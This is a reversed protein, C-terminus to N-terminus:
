RSGEIIGGGVLEDGIYVVAAQGAAPARMSRDTQLLLFCDSENTPVQQKQYTGETQRNTDKQSRKIMQGCIGVLDCLSQSNELVEGLLEVEGQSVLCARGRYVESWQSLRIDVWFLDDPIINEAQGNNNSCKWQRKLYQLFVKASKRLERARIPSIINVDSLVLVTKKVEEETGILINGSETSIDVITGLVTYPSETYGKISKVSSSDWATKSGQGSSQSGAATVAGDFPEINSNNDFGAPNAKLLNERLVRPKQGITYNATGEHPCLNEGERNVFYGNRASRSGAERLFRVRDKGMLFCTGMSEQQEVSYEGLLRVVDEKKEYNALPFLIRDLQEQTLSYLNYSQDKREAGSRYIRWEGDVWKKKAYHGLALYDTEVRDLFLGYKIWRNCFVCPNPTLGEEYFRIYRQVVHNSFAERCDVIRHRVGLRAAQDRLRGFEEEQGDYLWMTATEVVNFTEKLLLVSATSDVGGSFGVTVSKM